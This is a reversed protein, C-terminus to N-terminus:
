AFQDSDPHNDWWYLIRGCNECLIIETEAKLENIMQPRIRMHCMSCFDDTVPSLALGNNKDAIKKYLNIQDPHVEPVLANREQLLQAREEEMKKRQTKLDDIDVTLKDKAKQATEEANKIETELEDAELMKEIIEEELGDMKKQTDDIERLLSTYEKNTKVTNLQQKYKVIRSKRDQVESELDRRRKQNQALKERANNVVEFSEEIKDEIKRIQSPINQLFLSAHNIKEDLKQLRTLKGFEFDM